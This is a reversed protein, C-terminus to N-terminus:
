RRCLKSTPAARCVNTEHVALSIMYYTSLCTNLATTTDTAGTNDAGCTAVANVYPDIGACISSTLENRGNDGLCNESATAVGFAALLGVVVFIAIKIM